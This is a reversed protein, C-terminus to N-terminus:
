EDKGSGSALYIIVGVIVGLVVVGLGVILLTFVEM